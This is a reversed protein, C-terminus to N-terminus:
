FGEKSRSCQWIQYKLAVAQFVGTMKFLVFAILNKFTLLLDHGGDVGTDEWHVTDWWMGKIKFYKKTGCEILVSWDTVWAWLNQAFTYLIHVGLTRSKFYSNSSNTYISGFKRLWNLPEKSLPLFDNFLLFYNLIENPVASLGQRDLIIQCVIRESQNM